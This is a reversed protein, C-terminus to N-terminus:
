GYESMSASLVHTLPCSVSSVIGAQPFGIAASRWNPQRTRIKLGKATVYRCLELDYVLVKGRPKRDSSPGNATLM